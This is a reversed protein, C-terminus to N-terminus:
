IMATYFKTNKLLVGTGSITKIHNVLLDNRNTIMTRMGNIEADIVTSDMKPNYYVLIRLVNQKSYTVNEISFSRGRCPIYEYPMDVVSKYNCKQKLEKVAIRYPPITECIKEEDTINAFQAQKREFDLQLECGGSNDDSFRVAFVGKLDSLIEMEIYYAGFCDSLKYDIVAESSEWQKKIEPMLEPLWKSGLIGNEFQILERHVLASGWGIGAVWGAMIVRNDDCLVAMPVALGDYIDYGEAASDIFIDENKETRWFGVFGMLLYQYGNWKFYSPCEHTNLMYTDEFCPPFDEKIVRWPMDPKTSEWTKGGSFMLLKGNFTYVSPNIVFNVIKNSCKFHIGDDSQAYSTGIPYKGNKFIEDYDVIMSSKNNKFYERMDNDINKDACIMRDTHLGFAVYYKGEFFFMTGTGTSQWQETIDWIPEVEEWNVFDKTIMHEFHHAGCGWRNGHHHRDPMYMLHYIGDHYFNVVDGIFTNHGFPTYCIPKGNITNHESFCKLAEFENSFTIEKVAKKDIYINNGTPKALEGYILNENIIKGDYALHFHTKTCIIWLEKETIDYLKLPLSLRMENWEKHESKFSLCVTIVPVFSDGDRKNFLCERKDWDDQLISDKSCYRQEIKLMGPIEAITKSEAPYENLQLGIFIGAKCYQYNEIPRMKGSFKYKKINQKIM